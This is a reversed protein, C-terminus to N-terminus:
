NPTAALESMSAAHPTPRRWHLCAAAVVGLCAAGAMILTTHHYCTEGACDHKAYPSPHLAAERTYIASAIWTSFILSGGSVALSMCNYLSAFYRIGFLETLIAPNLTWFGGYSFGVIAGGLFLTPITSFSLVLQGCVMMVMNVIVFFSRQCRGELADMALGYVVRGLCNLVSIVSLLVATTSANGGLAQVMHGSNNLLVLGGGMGVFAVMFLLWFDLTLLAEKPPVDEPLSARVSGIPADLTLLETSRESGDEAVPGRALLGLLALFVLSVVFSAVNVVEADDDLVLRAISATLLFFALSVVIKLGLNLRAASCDREGHESPDVYFLLPAALAGPVGLAIALFLLFSSPRSVFFLFYVQTLVGGSLGYFAKNLAIARGRQAPFNRATTTLAANDYWGSGHGWLFWFICLQWYSPTILEASWAWVGLYGGITFLAALFATNRGGGIPSDNFFGAAPLWNGLNSAFILQQIQHQGHPGTFFQDKLEATYLGTIYISGGCVQLVMGGLM